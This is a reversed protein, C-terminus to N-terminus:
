KVVPVVNSSTYLNHLEEKHLICDEGADRGKRRCTWINEETDRTRM